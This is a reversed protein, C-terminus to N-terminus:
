DPYTSPNDADLSPNYTYSAHNIDTVEATYTGSSAGKLSFEVQGNRDTSGSYYWTGDPGTLTSDVTASSVPGDNSMITVTHYLFTNPGAQKIRWSIDSVWMDTQQGQVYVNVTTTMSNDALDEEGTVASEEAKIIHDGLTAGSTDTDWIFSEVSFAGDALIVTTIGIEVEDTTDTVTLTFTEGYTGQNEVTIDITATEGQLVWSPANIATVAVDYVDPPSGVAAEADVLGYGYRKDRGTAGLDEATEQLRLRVDGANTLTPDSAIVLAATGSVHPCSMSTGSKTAYAGDKYTSYISVGPAALEVYPGSNSWYPVGDSSDTAAVAIVSDYAAPYSYEDTSIDGDGENGAAAVVVIGAGADWAADCVDRLSQYNSSTGLSMSIVDMDNDISWQIGAVVDSLYGSGRRDLVKVGYLGTEKAVGVVGEENDVAAIIGACHTGHGNDDDWKDPNVKRGVFNVGGKINAKLDPHDKDIGTDIVAVKVGTGTSATWALDADIRDVGWPLVEGLMTVIGDYEVYRVQPNNQLAVMATEPITAVLAHIQPMINKVEGNHAKILAVDPEAHFGIIVNIKEPQAASVFLPTTSIVLSFVLTFVMLTKKNLM